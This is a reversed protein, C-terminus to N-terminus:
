RSKDWYLYRNNKRTSQTFAGWDVNMTKEQLNSVKGWDQNVTKEHLNPNTWDEHITQDQLDRSSDITEEALLKPINSLSGDLLDTTQRNSHIEGIAVTQDSPSIKIQKQISAIQAASLFKQNLMLQAISISKGQELGKKQLQLCTALQVPKILKLSIAIKGFSLDEEKSM